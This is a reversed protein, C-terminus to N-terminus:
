TRQYVPKLSTSHVQLQHGDDHRVIFSVPTLVQVIRAPGTYRATLKSRGNLVKTWVLDGVQYTPNSRNRDYRIKSSQQQHLIQAKAQQLAAQKYKLVQNYYDSPKSFRFSSNYPDFSNRPTRGFALQYPTFGTTQHVGHNYAYVISPLYIDWNNHDTNCYKALQASFTSNWRETQGNTQPHYTTSFVHKSGILISIAQLLENKFHLGQDTIIKDPPGHILILEEMLIRATDQATNTPSARAIVYNSLRDTIVLVYRNGAISTQTPGWWDMGIIQFVENPPEIPQLLGPPKQRSVNFQSCKHCSKIYQSIVHKM